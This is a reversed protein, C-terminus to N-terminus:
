DSLKSLRLIREENGSTQILRAGVFFCVLWLGVSLGAWYGYVGYGKSSLWAGLPLAILWYGAIGYFMPVTTDKYGRLTAGMAGLSDDAIQYVAIFLILTAAVSLVEPNTTYIAVVEHRFLILLGGVIFAYSLALLFATLASKRAKQFQHAGVFFGIRISAASGISMPIVYTAWNINGAISHAALPIVGLGGILVTIIAFIAMNIFASIGLPIGVRFLEKLRGWNPWDFRELIHTDKMFRTTLLTLMLVMEFWMVIATAIGCGAGGLEPAGFRGYIFAWNLFGNLVLAICVIIMPPLTKGLGECTYRLNMYVLVAPLGWVVYEIYNMGIQTVVPDVDALDFLPKTNLVFLVAIIAAAIAYWFGQQVMGGVETLRGAGRLQSVIPVLAMNIGAILMFVPWIVNGALSVGALDNASYHGSMATDLFGMGLIFFQTTAMPAGLKLIEKTETVFTASSSLSPKHSSSVGESQTDLAM